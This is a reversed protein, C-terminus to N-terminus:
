DLFIAMLSMYCGVTAFLSLSLGFLIVMFMPHHGITTSLSLSHCVLNGNKFSTSLSLYVISKCLLVLYFSCASSSHCSLHFELLLHITAPQFQVVLFSQSLYAIGQLSSLNGLDSSYVQFLSGRMGHSVKLRYSQNHFEKDPEYSIYPSVFFSIPNETAM